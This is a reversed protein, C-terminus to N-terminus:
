LSSVPDLAPEGIHVDNAHRVRVRVALCALASALDSAQFFFLVGRGSKL